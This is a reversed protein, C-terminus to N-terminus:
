QPRSAREALLARILDRAATSAWQRPGVAFAVASGDRGIVFTTPLGVVGYAASIKGDPDLVLPFTLRLETAYRRVAEPDERANVGLLALGQSAFEQHLRELLPMEPRCELCWSAWFNLLVAKGRLDAIAVPRRDLTEARFAPPAARAPYGILDLPKLLSTVASADASVPGGPALLLFAGM